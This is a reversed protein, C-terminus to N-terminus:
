AGVMAYQFSMLSAASVTGFGSFTMAGGGAPVVASSGGLSGGSGNVLTVSLTEGACAAPVGSVVVQTFNGGNDVSRTTSLSAVGCSTVSANGASLAQSGLALSAAAGFAAFTAAVALALGLIKALLTMDTQM